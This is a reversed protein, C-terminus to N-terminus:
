TYNSIKLCFFIKLGIFGLGNYLILMIAANVLALM